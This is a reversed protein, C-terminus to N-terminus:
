CADGRPAEEIDFPKPQPYLRSMVDQWYLVGVNAFFLDVAREAADRDFAGNDFIADPPPYEGGYTCPVDHVAIQGERAPHKIQPWLKHPVMYRSHRDCRRCHFHFAWGGTTRRVGDRDKGQYHVIFLTRDDPHDTHHITLDIPGCWYCERIRWDTM